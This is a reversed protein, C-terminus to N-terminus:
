DEYQKELKRERGEGKDAQGRTERGGGGVKFFTEKFVEPNYFLSIITSISSFM